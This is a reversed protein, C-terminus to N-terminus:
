SKFAQPDSEHSTCGLLAIVWIDSPINGICCTPHLMSDWNGLVLRLKRLGRAPKPICGQGTYCPM